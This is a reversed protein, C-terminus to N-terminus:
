VVVLCFQKTARDPKGWARAAYTQEPKRFHLANSIRFLYLCTNNMKLGGAVSGSQHGPYILLPRTHSRVAHFLFFRPCGVFSPPVRIARLAWQGVWWLRMAGFVCLETYYTFQLPARLRGNPQWACFLLKSLEQFRLKELRRCTHQGTMSQVCSWAATLSQILSQVIVSKPGCLFDIVPIDFFLCGARHSKQRTSNDLNNECPPVTEWAARHSKQRASHRYSPIKTNTNVKQILNTALNKSQKPVLEQWTNRTYLFGLCRGWCTWKNPNVRTGRRSTPCWRWAPAFEISSVIVELWVHLM